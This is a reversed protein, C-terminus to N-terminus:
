FKESCEMLIGNEHEINSRQESDLWSIKLRCKAQNFDIKVEFNKNKLIDITKSWIIRQATKNKMNPIDYIFPIETIIHFCGDRQAQKLEINIRIIIEKLYDEIHRKQNGNSKLLTADVLFDDLKTDM